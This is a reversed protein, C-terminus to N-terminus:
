EEVEVLIPPPVCNIETAEWPFTSLTNAINRNADYWADIQADLMADAAFAEQASTPDSM